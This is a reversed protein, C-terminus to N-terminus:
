FFRALALSLYEDDRYAYLLDGQASNAFLRGELSLKWDAGLRRSGELTTFSARSDLDLVSVVLLQTDQVDNLALRVGLAVDNGVPTRLVPQDDFLYEAIVGIDADGGLRGDFTYEVGTALAVSRGDANRRAVLEAKWLWGSITAQLDVSSQELLDYYPMLEFEGDANLNLDLRPQRSTGSFHAVGFDWDGVYHSYRVALDLHRRGRASQYRAADENVDLGFHPRGNPGAFTRERFYPLALLDVTGWEPTWRLSLMPQGLKDEGDINEVFDTQNVIDVLHASETVGWFVQRLGASLEVSTFTRQWYLERVDLHTRRSDREDWRAFPAVVVRQRGEDWDHYLETDLSLSLNSRGQGDHLPDAAYGTSQVAVNGSFEQAFASGGLVLSMASMYIWRRVSTTRFGAPLRLPRSGKLAADRRDVQQDPM